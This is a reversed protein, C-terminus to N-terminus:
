DDICEAEYLRWPLKLSQLTKGTPDILEAAILNITWPLLKHELKQVRKQLTEPTDNQHTQLIAQTLINGSDLQPTVYHISCGHLKDGTKIVRHHTDLGKYVPLLSPHLNIMPIGLNNIFDASLIRMFGALVILDVQWDQIIQRAHSEFTTMTMRKGSSTHSLIVTQISANQARTIAYADERNSIVGIIEVSLKGLKSEDILVQLNSGSGSVLVAIRLRKHSITANNM